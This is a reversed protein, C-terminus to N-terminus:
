VFFIETILYAASLHKKNYIFYRTTLQILQNQVWQGLVKLDRSATQEELLPQLQEATCHRPWLMEPQM